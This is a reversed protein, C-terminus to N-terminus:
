HHVLWTTYAVFCEYTFASCVAAQWPHQMSHLVSRFGIRSTERVLAPKGIRSEVFRGVTQTATRAGYIALFVGGLGLAISTM